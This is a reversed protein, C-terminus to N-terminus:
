VTTGILKKKEWRRSYFYTAGIIAPIIPSLAQGWYVGEFGYAVSISLFWCLSLRIFVADLLADVMAINASGVGVAFSDFSYMVAYILSNFFCCIRLYQIGANIVEPSSPAFLTVLQKAFIQVIVVAIFTVLLNLRLGTKGTKETRDTLGGGMNQGVMTTMAQGIAWCPMGAFTNIKLGIGAAAAVTVGYGNLMAALVMYSVNVVTMQITTPLSIKLVAILKDKKVRFSKLKFAFIFKQKKLYAISIVFSVGQAIVTAYAAGVTGMGMPGVFLYDLIINIVTAIGVFILPRVSDGFGRLISCTANYGFVFFTGLFIVFMYDYADQLAEPPVNLLDLLPKYVFLGIVTILLAVIATVSYITSVTEQQSKRDDAGKYQAVLVTGGLTVGTCVANIIFVLTSANSIAAVGASGVVRGVVLMDVINYFSQLLNAFFLPIAFKILKTPVHGVTLDQETEM